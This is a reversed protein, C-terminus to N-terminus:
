NSKKKNQCPKYNFIKNILEVAKQIREKKPTVTHFFDHVIGTDGFIEELRYPRNEIEKTANNFILFSGKMAIYGVFVLFHSQEKFSLKKFKVVCNDTFNIVGDTTFEEEKEKDSVVGLITENLNRQQAVAIAEKTSKAFVFSCFKHDGVPYETLYVKQNKM